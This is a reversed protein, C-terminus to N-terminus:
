AAARPFLESIEGEVLAKGHQEKLVWSYTLVIHGKSTPRRSKLEGELHVRDGPYAASRFQANLGLMPVDLSLGLKMIFHTVITLLFTGSVIRGRYGLSRAAEDSLLIDETKELLSYYTDLDRDTIVREDSAFRHGIRKDILSESEV